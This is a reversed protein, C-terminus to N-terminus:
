PTIAGATLTVFGGIFGDANDIEVDAGSGVPGIGLDLLFVGDGDILRVWTITHDGVRPIEVASSDPRSTTFTLTGGEVTGAPRELVIEAQLNTATGGTPPRSGDYFRMRGPTSGGDIAALLGGLMADIAYTSVGETM